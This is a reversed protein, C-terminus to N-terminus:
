HIYCSIFDIELINLIYVPMGLAIDMSINALLFSKEFFRSRKEKDEISFCAIVMDLTNLKSGDIYKTDVRTKRVQLSLKKVFDLYIVNVESYLNILAQVM